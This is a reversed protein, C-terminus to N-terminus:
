CKTTFQSLCGKVFGERLISIDLFSNYKAKAGVHQSEVDRRTPFGIIIDAVCTLDSAPWSLGVRM